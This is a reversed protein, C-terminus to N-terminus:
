RLYPWLDSVPSLVALLWKHLGRSHVYTESQLYTSFLWDLYFLSCPTLTQEFPTREDLSLPTVGPRWLTAWWTDDRQPM